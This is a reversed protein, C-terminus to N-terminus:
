RCALFEPSAPFPTRPVCHGCPWYRPEGSTQTKAHPVRSGPNTAGCPVLRMPALCARETVSQSFDQSFVARALAPRTEQRDVAMVRITLCDPDIQLEQRACLRQNSEAWSGHFLSRRAIKSARLGHAGKSPSSTIAFFFLFFPLIERLGTTSAISSVMVFSVLAFFLADASPLLFSLNFILDIRDSRLSAISRQLASSRQVGCM